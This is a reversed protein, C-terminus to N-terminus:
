GPQEVAPRVPRLLRAIRPNVRRCDRNGCVRTMGRWAAGCGFGSERPAWGILAAIGCVRCGGRARGRVLVRRWLLFVGLGCLEVWM